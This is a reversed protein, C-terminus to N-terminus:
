EEDSDTLTLEDDPQNVTSKRKGLIGKKKLVLLVAAAAAIVVVPIVVGLVIALTNDKKQQKEIVELKGTERNYYYGTFTITDGSVSVKGFTQSDLTRLVSKDEDFKPTVEENEKYNYFKTGMTGLTIYLVGKDESSYQLKGDKPLKSVEKGEGDLLYTATYTHDHGAFVINVGNENFIPVLQKRMAIVEADTSHSGGSYLSKHMLVFKWKAASNKLDNELWNLQVAGLGNSDADNTNLVVFHANAYDFSYFVGNRLSDNDDKKTSQQLLKGDGGIPLTYNFFNVMANSGNEHNGATFFMSTNAFLNQYTNLAMAWQNFNKGNDCMDGANLIFDFNKTNPDALLAKVAKYSDDYMGQIMGQIDAITLFEFETVSSDAATAFAFYDKDYGLTKSYAALSFQASKGESSYSGELDYYYTTGATLGTVTVTTVNWYVVSNKEAKDRDGYVYPVDNDNEVEGHTLCALGLDILPLYVPKTQTLMTVTIGDKTNYITESDIYPKSYKGDNDKTVDAKAKSTSISIWEGDAAAKFKFTGYVNEETYFKFTYATTSDETDFNSTVRSPVRGNDQTAPNFAGGVSSMANASGVYSMQRGGYAYGSHPQVILAESPDTLNKVDPYVDTAFAMIINDAIGGLGVLFSPTVYSDLMNEVINVLSDGDMNFGIMDGVIPKLVPLLTDVLTGICLNDPDIVLKFDEPLDIGLYSEVSKILALQCFKIEHLTRLGEKLDDYQAQTLIGKKVADRMDFSYGLLTKLLSDDNNFLPDLLSDLLVQVFTGDALQGHLDKLAALMRKRYTRDTPQMFGYESSCQVESFNKDISAETEDLSIEAGLSHSMMIFSAIQKVNLKGANKPNVASAIDGRGYKLGLVNDIIARVYTLANEYKQGNYPYGDGEGEGYLHNLATDIIYQVATDLTTSDEIVLLSAVATGVSGTLAKSVAAKLSDIMRDTIFHDLMRDVLISYIDKSIFENYSMESLEDYRVIYTLYEPNSDLVAQWTDSNKNAKWADLAIDYANQNWPTLATVHDGVEKLSTLLHIESSVQEGLKGDCTNREFTIYRRPSAYSITSGTEFDYLTRGEVDTYTMIDSAHMHGTLAYRIGMSLFRKAAYEWNYLTFDKLIDDEQEFHPLVNHHFSAIVTEEGLTTDEAKQTKTYAEVWNLCEETIRGGTLHSKTLVRYVNKGSAFVDASVQNKMDIVGNENETVLVPKVSLAYYEQESIRSPPGVAEVRDSSDFMVFSFGKHESDTLQAIYTLQDLSDGIQYYNAIDKTSSDAVTQLSPSYYQIALNQANTSEVYGDTYISSWYEAPLYDTLKVTGNKGDLSANPFGLGAFILAFQASNITDAIRGDGNEDYVEGNHNYLDHNGPAVFVQFNAYGQKARMSNQLYRMTNAVDILAVREGNKCLDGSAVLYQPATKNDGDKLIQKIAANLTMGSELVLKTDGTMAYYFDTSKYAASDVNTTYCYELPFYHIDSMHGVTIASEKVPASEAAYSVGGIVSFCLVAALVGALVLVLAFPLRKPYTTRMIGGLIRHMM